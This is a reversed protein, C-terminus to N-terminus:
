GDAVIHTGSRGELAAMAEELKGIIVRKGGGAIFQIAADVKPGMSGPPFQGEANYATLEEISVESLERQDPKGFNIAVRPVATLILDILRDSNDRRHDESM